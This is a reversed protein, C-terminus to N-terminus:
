STVQGTCVVFGCLTLFNCNWENKFVHYTRLLQATLRVGRCSWTLWHIYSRTLGWLWDQRKSSSFIRKDKERISSQITWNTAKESYQSLIKDLRPSRSGSVPSFVRFVVSLDRTKADNVSCFFFRFLVDHIRFWQWLFEVCTSSVASAAIHSCQLGGRFCFSVLLCHFWPLM